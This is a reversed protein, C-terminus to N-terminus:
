EKKRRDNKGKTREKDKRREGQEMIGEGKKGRKM